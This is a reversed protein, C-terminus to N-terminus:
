RKSRALSRPIVASSRNAKASHALMRWVNWFPWPVLIESREFKASFAAVRLSEQQLALWRMALLHLLRRAPLHHARDFRCGRRAARDAPSAPLAARSDAFARLM